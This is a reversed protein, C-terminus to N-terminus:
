KEERKLTIELQETKNSFVSYCMNCQLALTKAFIKASKCAVFNTKNCQKKANMGPVNSKNGLGT